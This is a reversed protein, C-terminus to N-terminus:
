SKEAQIDIKKFMHGWGYVVLGFSEESTGTVGGRSFTSQHCVPHAESRTGSEFFATQWDLRKGSSGNGASALKQPKAIKQLFKQTGEERLCSRPM